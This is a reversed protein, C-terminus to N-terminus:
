ILELCYLSVWLESGLLDDVTDLISTNYTHTTSTERGEDFESRRWRCLSLTHNDIGYLALWIDCGVETQHHLM